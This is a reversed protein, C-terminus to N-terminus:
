RPLVKLCILLIKPHWLHWWAQISTWPSPCLLFSSGVSLIIFIIHPSFLTLLSLKPPCYWFPDHLEVYILYTMLYSKLGIKYSWDKKYHSLIFQIKKFIKAVNRKKCSDCSDNRQMILNCRRATYYCTSYWFNICQFWIDNTCFSIDTTLLFFYEENDAYHVKGTDSIPLFCCPSVQNYLNPFFWYINKHYWIRPFYQKTINSNLM